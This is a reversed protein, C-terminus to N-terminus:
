AYIREYHKQLKRVMALTLPKCPSPFVPTSLRALGIPYVGGDPDYVGAKGGLDFELPHLYEMEPELLALVPKPAAAIVGAGLVTKFFRRRNM